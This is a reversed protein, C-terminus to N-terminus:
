AMLPEFGAQRFHEDATLAERLGLRKMVVFSTCDTLSWAKDPRAAFLTVAQRFTSHSAPVIMTRPDKRLDGILRLFVPRVNPARLFNATELLVFDTTVIRGTFTAAFRTAQQHDQERPSVAALYFWTDAFVRNM